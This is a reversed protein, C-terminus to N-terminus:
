INREKLLDNEIFFLKWRDMALKSTNHDDNSLDMLINPTNVTIRQSDYIGELMDYNIEILTNVSNTINFIM